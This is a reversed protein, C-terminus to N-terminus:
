GFLHTIRVELILFFFESKIINSFWVRKSWDSIIVYLPFAM